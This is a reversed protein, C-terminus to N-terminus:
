STEQLLKQKELSLRHQEKRHLLWRNLGAPLFSRVLLPTCLKLWAKRSVQPNNFAHAIMYRAMDPQHNLVRERILYRYCHTLCEARMPQYADPLQPQDFIWNMVALVSHLIQDARDTTKTLSSSYVRYQYVYHPLPYVRQRDGDILLRIYYQYDEAAVFREDLLGVREMTERKMLLGPLMCSLGGKLLFPWDHSYFSPLALKGTLPDPVLRLGEGTPTGAENMLDAFGYVATADAYQAFGDVLTALAHPLYRDDADLFGIYQGTAHRLGHNRVRSPQGQRTLPLVIIRPDVSALQQALTLTNDTSADDLLILEWRTYTQAQVSALAEALFRAANHAPMIISVLPLAALSDTTDPM